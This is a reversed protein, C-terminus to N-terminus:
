VRLFYLLVGTLRCEARPIGVDIERCKAMNDFSQRLYVMAEGYSSWEKMTRRVTEFKFVTM